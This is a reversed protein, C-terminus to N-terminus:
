SCVSRQRRKAQEVRESVTKRTPCVRVLKERGSLETTKAHLSQANRQALEPVADIEASPLLDDITKVRGNVLKAVLVEDSGERDALKAM